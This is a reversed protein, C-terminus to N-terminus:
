FRVLNLSVKRSFGHVNITDREIGRLIIFTESSLQLSFWFVHKTNLLKKGESITSNILIHPFIKYFPAPWLHCCPAHANPTPYRLSCICESLNHLVWHKEEEVITTRMSRLTANDTCQRDQKRYNTYLWHKRTSVDDTWVRV